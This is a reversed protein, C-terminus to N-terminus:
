KSIIRRAKKLAADLESETKKDARNTRIPKSSGSFPVKQTAKAYKPTKFPNFGSPKNGPKVGGKGKFFKKYAFWGGILGLIIVLIVILWIIWSSKEKEICTGALCEEGDGCDGDYICESDDSEYTCQGNQCIYGYSCDNDYVCEDSSTYECVCSSPNCIQDSSCPNNIDCNAGPDNITCTYNVAVCECLQCEEGFSCDTNNECDEGIEVIDNGCFGTSPAIYNGKTLAYLTLATREISEEWSGTNRDQKWELWDTASSVAGSSYSGRKLSVLAIATQYVDGPGWSGESSQSSELNDFYRNESTLLYLFSNDTTGENCNRKLYPIVYSRNGMEDLAWAAYQSVYCEGPFLGNEIELPNSEDIIYYEEGTKFLVSSSFGSLCEVNFSEYLGTGGNKICVEFDVWAGDILNCDDLPIIDTQNVSFSFEENDYTLICTSAGSGTPNFQILWKGGSNVIQQQNLLWEIEEEVDKGAKDLALTALASDYINSNWNNGSELELLKDIADGYDYGGNKLALVAWSLTRINTNWNDEELEDILWEYALHQDYGPRTDNASLVYFSCFIFIVLFIIINLRKKM